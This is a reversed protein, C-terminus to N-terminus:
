QAKGKEQLYQEIDAVADEWAALDITSSNEVVQRDSNNDDHLQSTDQEQASGDQLIQQLEDLSKQFEQDAAHRQEHQSQEM